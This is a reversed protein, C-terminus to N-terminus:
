KKNAKEAKAEDLIWFMFIISPFGSYLPAKTLEVHKFKQKLVEATDYVSPYTTGTILCTGKPHGRAFKEVVWVKGSVLIM